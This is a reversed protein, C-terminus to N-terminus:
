KVAHGYETIKWTKDPDFLKLAEAIKTSNKGLNKEYVIGDMHVIFTMIGSKGYKAPYAVLAFGGIMKGNAIYDYAGGPTNKGQAKLIKYYYGHYPLPPGLALIDEPMNKYGEKTARAIAPGLPSPKEGEQTEWYLGNKQGPDSVFKQAYEFFGDRDHDGLAYERQADVYALCVQVANLEHRGIIRNLIEEKGAKSDFYWAQGKKVLPIPFPWDNNGTHLITKTDGAKELRDKEQYSTLFAERVAKDDAEDGFSILQMGIPGFIASLTKDDNAKLAEVMTTVGEEPSVFS